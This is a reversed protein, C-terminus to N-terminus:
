RRRTNQHWQESDAEEISESRQGGPQRPAEAQGKHSADNMVRAKHADIPENTTIQRTGREPGRTPKWTRKARPTEENMM